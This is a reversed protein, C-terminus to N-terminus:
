VSYSPVPSKGCERMGVGAVYHNTLFLSKLVPISEQSVLIKEEQCFLFYLTAGEEPTGRTSLFGVFNEKIIDITRLFGVFNERIIDITRELTRELSRVCSKM